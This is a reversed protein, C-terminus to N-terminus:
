TSKKIFFCNDFIDKTNRPKYVISWTKSTM